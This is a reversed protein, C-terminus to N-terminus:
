AHGKVKELYSKLFTMIVRTAGQNQTMYKKIIESTKERNSDVKLYDLVVEYEKLRNISYAGGLRILDNAEQFKQYKPGFIIPLGFVAPELVNHIGTGFGGGIYSIDGYRYIASLIGINDIILVKAKQIQKKHQSKMESFKLHEVEIKREIEEIHSEQINHPAIIHKWNNNERNIFEIIISEDKAWTSGCILVKNKSCFQEIEPFSSSANAISFVRDIRTDGCVTSNNYGHKTLLEKSLENQVFFHEFCALMKLHLLNLPKKFFIQQERFIGSVLFTPIGRKKLTKLYYYWFEYKVFIAIDPNVIKLFQNANKPSDSPLYFVYDALEYNKRVEFGSPSFFTLLIKFKPYDKKLVEIIPRGQEFEGLSACHIWVLM